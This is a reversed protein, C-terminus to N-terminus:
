IRLLHALNLEFGTVLGEGAIKREFGELKQEPAGPRYIYTAKEIPDVLWALLAGNSIWNTMKVKLNCLDDSKSRVEVVFEPCIPAFRDKDVESVTNWREKSIWCADPSLVSRDPLTFGTSSDFAFGNNDVISWMYLQAFVAGSSYNSKTSVPSMILIQLQSNREIRLDKNQICFQFFEEDTLRSTINDKLVVTDM